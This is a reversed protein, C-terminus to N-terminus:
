LGWGQKPRVAICFSLTQFVVVVVVEWLIVVVINISPLYNTYYTCLGHCTRRFTSSFTYVGVLYLTTNDHPLRLVSQFDDKSYLFRTYYTYNYYSYEVWITYSLNIWYLIRRLRLKIPFDYYTKLLFNKLDFCWILHIRKSYTFKM